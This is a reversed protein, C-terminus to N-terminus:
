KGKEQNVAPLTIWFTTVGAESHPVISGGHESIIGLVISLGLGMGHRRDTTFFPDFIHMLDESAIGGADDGFRIVM